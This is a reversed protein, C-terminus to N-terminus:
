RGDRAVREHPTYMVCCPGPGRVRETVAVDARMESLLFGPRVPTPGSM